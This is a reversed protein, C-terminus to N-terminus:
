NSKIVIVHDNRVRETRGLVVLLCALVVDSLAISNVVTISPAPKKIRRKASSFLVLLKPSRV